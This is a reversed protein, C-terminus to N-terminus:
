LAPMASSLQARRPALILLTRCFRPHAIQQRLLPEHSSSGSSGMLPSTTTDIACVRQAPMCPVPWYHTSPLNSNSCRNAAFQQRVAHRKCPAFHLQIRWVSCASGKILEQHQQQAPMAFLALSGYSHQHCKGDFPTCCVARALLKSHQECHM